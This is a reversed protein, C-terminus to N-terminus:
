GGQRRLLACLEDYNDVTIDVGPPIKGGRVRVAFREDFRGAEYARNLAAVIEVASPESRMGRLIGTVIEGQRKTSM